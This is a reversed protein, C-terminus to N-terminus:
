RRKRVGALFAARDSGWLSALEESYGLVIWPCSAAALRLLEAAGEKSCKAEAEPGGDSRFVVSHSRRIPIVWNLRTTTTKPYAWVLDELRRVAFRSGGSVVLWSPTLLAERGSAALAPDQLEAEIRGVTGALPGFRRLYAIEESVDPRLLVRLAQWLDQGLLYLALLFAANWFLAVFVSEVNGSWWLLEVGLLLLAAAGVPLAASLASFFAARRVRSALWAPVPEPATM